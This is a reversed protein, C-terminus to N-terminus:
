VTNNSAITLVLKIPVLIISEGEDASTILEPVVDAYLLLLYIGNPIIPEKIIIIISIGPTVTPPDLSM